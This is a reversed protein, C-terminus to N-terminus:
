FLTLCSHGALTDFWLTMCSHRVLAYRLLTLCPHGVLTDGWHTLDPHEVFPNAPFQSLYTNLRQKEVYTDANPNTPKMKNKKKKESTTKEFVVTKYQKLNWRCYRFFFIWVYNQPRTIFSKSLSSDFDTATPSGTSAQLDPRSAESLATLMQAGPFSCWTGKSM